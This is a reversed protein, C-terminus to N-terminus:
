SRRQDNSYLMLPRRDDSRAEEGLLSLLINAFVRDTARVKEFFLATLASTPCTCVFCRKQRRDDM